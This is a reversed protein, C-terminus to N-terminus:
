GSVGDAASRKPPPRSATSKGPFALSIRGSLMLTAHMIKQNVEPPGQAAMPSEGWTLMTLIKGDLCREYFKFAAESHREPM